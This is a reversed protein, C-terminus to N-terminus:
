VHQFLERLQEDDILKEGETTVLSAFASIDLNVDLLQDKIKECDVKKRILHIIMGANEVRGVFIMGVPVNDRLVLKRYHTKERDERTLVTYGEDPPRVIGASIMPLGYFDTANMTLSGEYAMDAGAMNMGAVRGQQTACPWIAHVSSEQEVVDETEAVDGAAFIGPRSTEQKENVVVGYRCAIGAQDALEKRPSVGKGVIVLDRPEIIGDSYRVQEVKTDGIIEEVDCGTKVQIGQSEFLARYIEGTKQDALQSLLFPSRVVITARVGMKQLGAAVQLGVNGGGLVVARKINKAKEKIRRLDALTRFPQVGPLDIGKIDPMKPSAGTALLLADWKITEGNDLRITKEKADLAEVKVGSLFRIKKEEFFTEPRYYSQKEDELKGTLYYYIMPRAYLADKEESILIIKSQDDVGRIAEAASIGAASAGIICYVGPARTKKKAIEPPTEVDESEDLFLADTPCSTICAPIDLDGCLDCKAAGREDEMRIVGYPCAMVCMWCSVCKKQDSVVEGTLPDRTIGGAKCAFSCLPEPCQQCALPIPHGSSGSVKLRYVPLPAEKIAGFLTGSESHQIACALECSRCGLCRDKNFLIRKRHM